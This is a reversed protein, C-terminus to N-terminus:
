YQLCLELQHYADDISKLAAARHGGFDNKEQEIHDKADHLAHMADQIKPYSGAAPSPSSLALVLTVFAVGSILKNKTNKM